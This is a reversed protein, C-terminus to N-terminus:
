GFWILDWELLSQAQGSIERFIGKMHLDDVIPGNQTICDGNNIVVGAM